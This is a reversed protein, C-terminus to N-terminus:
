PANGSFGTTWSHPHPLPLCLQLIWGLGVSLAVDAPAWLSSLSGRLHHPAATVGETLRQSLLTLAARRPAPVPPFAPASMADEVWSMELDPLTM